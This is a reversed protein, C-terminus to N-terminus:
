GQVITASVPNYLTVLAIWEEADALTTWTRVTTVPAPPDSQEPINDTKGELAAQAAAADLIDKVEQSVLPDWVVVTQVTM